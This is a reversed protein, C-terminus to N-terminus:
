AAVNEKKKSHIHSGLEEEGSKWGALITASGGNANIAYLNGDLQPEDLAGYKEAVNMVVRHDNVWWFNQVHINQELKVMGTVKNSARDLIALITRDDLPITVALYKGDPSLKIDNFKDNKTFADVDVQAASAAFSALAIAFAIALTRFSM